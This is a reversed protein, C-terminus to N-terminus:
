RKSPSDATMPSVKTSEKRNPLTTLIQAIAYEGFLRPSNEIQWDDSSDQGIGLEAIYHHWTQNLTKQQKEDFVKDAAWLIRGTHAEVLKLRWGVALPPYARFTTLQCFLVADCGYVRQLSDLFNAPLVETGTWSQRGTQHHLAEPPVAVVEFKKTKILEALLIPGLTESGLALDTASGEWALPLVAVRKLDAPLNPSALFTNDAPGPPPPPPTFPTPNTTQAHVSLGACFMLGLITRRTHGRWRSFGDFAETKSQSLYRCM